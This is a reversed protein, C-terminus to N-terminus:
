AQKRIKKYKPNEKALVRLKRDAILARELQLENRIETFDLFDNLNFQTKM